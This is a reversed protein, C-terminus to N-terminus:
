RGSPVGLGAYQNGFSGVRDNECQPECKEDQDEIVPFGRLGSVSM